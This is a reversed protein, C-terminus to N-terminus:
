QRYKSLIKEYEGSEKLNALALNFAQVIEESVSERSFIISVDSSSIELPLAEIQGQLGKRRITFTAVFPDELFGDIYGQTLNYYNVETIPVSVIQSSLGDDNQLDDVKEGYLYDQTVGLKFGQGLLEKLGSDAYKDSEEPRVYLLFSEHRYSDSFYAFQKRTSTPTAGGLMDVSGNRIGNLLNVWSDQVFTVDCGVESAMATILDIELGKVTNEPTLYQYPEWPDWGMKLECEAPEVATQAVSETVEPETVEPESSVANVPETNEGCAALTLLLCGALSLLIRKKM